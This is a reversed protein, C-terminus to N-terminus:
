SKGGTGPTKLTVAQYRFNLVAFPNWRDLSAKAPM